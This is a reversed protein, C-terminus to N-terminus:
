VVTEVIRHAKVYSKLNFMDHEVCSILWGGDADTGGTIDIRAMATLAPDFEVDLTLEECKSNIKKLLARAWRGAEASTKAPLIYISKEIHGDDVALDRASAEAWPTIVNLQKLQTGARTYRAGSQDATLEIERAAPRQAAADIGIAWYAGNSCKLEAGELTLIRNLFAAASEFNQQAYSIELGTLEGFIGYKMGSYGACSAMIKELTTSYYNRYARERAACPLATAIIRYKGDEPIVTHVYMVGSNYGSELVIITDDERPQWKIWKGANEFTIDLGDCRGGCEDRVVCDSIAAVDSIDVGNYFIEMRVAGTISFRASM